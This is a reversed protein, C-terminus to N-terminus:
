SRRSEPSTLKIYHCCCRLRDFTREGLYAHLEDKSLNTTIITSLLQSYRYDFLDFLVSMIKKSDGYSSGVDDVVLIKAEKFEDIPSTNDRYNYKDSLNIVDREKIFRCRSGINFGVDNFGNSHARIIEKVSNENVPEGRNYENIVSAAIYTKGSGRSGSLILGNKGQIEDNKLLLATIYKAADIAKQNHEDVVMNAFLANKENKLVRSAKMRKDYYFDLARERAEKEQKLRLQKECECEIYFTRQAFENYHSEKEKGCISCISNNNM